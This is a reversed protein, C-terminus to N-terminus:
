QFLGGALIDLRELEKKDPGDGRRTISMALAAIDSHSENQKDFKPVKLYEVVSVGLSLQAGYASIAEAITPANLIGTLYAAEDETKVAVFYLKHDPVVIKMGLIDDKTKGIYAASFRGGAMERWLVKFPSFTYPGTSWLSWYVQGKQFRKYSSRQELIDKFAALFRYTLPASIPLKSDGHMGRQPMLIRYDPDPRAVFAEVGRGRILPFLHEREVIRRVKPISDTRGVNPANEILCRNQGSDKLIKVFFIGNRDTTVGKRAEYNAPQLADFLSKWRKHQALTGKLWPGGDTGPVPAALLDTRSARKRFSASDSYQRVPRGDRRAAQWVIYPIPFKTGGDHELILLTPHNTVGDFPAVERFDQVEIVNASAGTDEINFRRFGQSSENSFVSGTIFFGLKGKNSLWKGIAEFTIVTSIDSEIGGVWRDDSFVGRKLCRNKIFSAYEPPLHSWKVWPPNGAIYSVRPLAGASFRDALISCWIGDWGEDHMEELTRVTEGFIFKDNDTLESLDFEATLAVGITAAHQDANILDRLRGFLGYFDARRVLKSPVIFTKLGLETQLTHVFTDGVADASNIADALFIPLHIPASAKLFPALYVVISARAALVALPNLDIGFIGALIKSPDVSTGRACQRMLRRRIAELLFTGTGCTPDLLDEKPHWGLSDLAHSALWDPTYVEGLAHRLERPVFTEYMGKFLDRTSASSKKTVDFSIGSLRTVLQRIPIEFSKWEADDVYWSFFDGILMNVIGADAFVSGFELSLLRDKLSVSADLIDQSGGTLSLAAVIKAVLAIHTNLAFLYQPIAKYYSERHSVGQRRLMERLQHSQIGVVQGFLRSWERFLLKTKTTPSSSKTAKTLAHFLRPVLAAGVDTEPGVLSSLLRPHVLPRGNDRLHQLLRQAQNEDFAVLSEWKFAEDLFYGITLHAGDWAILVYENLPRGEEQQILKTYDEAQSKAHNLVAGEMGAFSKPPEYEIIVAGHAVDVFRPGAGNDSWLTQDLTFPTWAIRLNNCAVELAKEIEHRLSAENKAGSTAIAVAKSLEKAAAEIETM